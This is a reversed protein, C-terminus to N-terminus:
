KLAIPDSADIGGTGGTDEKKWPLSKGQGVRSDTDSGLRAAPKSSRGYNPIGKDRQM